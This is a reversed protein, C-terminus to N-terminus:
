LSKKQPVLIVDKPNTRSFSSQDSHSLDEYALVLERLPLIYGIAGGDDSSCLNKEMTLITGQVGYQACTSRYLECAFKIDLSKIQVACHYLSNVCNLVDQVSLTWDINEALSEIFAREGSTWNKWRILEDRKCAVCYGADQTSAIGIYPMSRHVIYNRLKLWIGFVVCQEQLSRCSKALKERDAESNSMWAFAVDKFTSLSAAFNHISANADITINESSDRGLRVNEYRETVNSIDANNLFAQANRRVVERARLLAMYPDVVNFAERLTDWESRSIVGRPITKDGLRQAARPGIMDLVLLDSGISSLCLAVEDSDKVLDPNLENILFLRTIAM